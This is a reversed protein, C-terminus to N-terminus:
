MLEEKNLNKFFDKDSTFIIEDAVVNKNKNKM